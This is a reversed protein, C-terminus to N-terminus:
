FAAHCLVTSHAPGASVFTSAPSLLGIFYRQGHSVSGSSRSIHIFFGKISVLFFSTLCPQPHPLFWPTLMLFNLAKLVAMLDVFSGPMFFTVVKKIAVIFILRQALHSASTQVEFFFFTNQTTMKIKWCSYRKPCPFLFFANSFIPPFWFSTSLLLSCMETGQNRLWLTCSGSAKHKKETFDVLGRHWHRDWTGGPHLAGCSFICFM